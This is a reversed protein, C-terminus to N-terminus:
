GFAADLDTHVGALRQACADYLSALSREKLQKVASEDHPAQRGPYGPEPDEFGSSGNSRLSDATACSWDKRFVIGM